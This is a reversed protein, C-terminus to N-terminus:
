CRSVVPLGLSSFSTLQIRACSVHAAPTQGTCSLSSTSYRSLSSIVRKCVKFASRCRFEWRGCNDTRFLPAKLKDPSPQSQGLLSCYFKVTKAVCLYNNKMGSHYLFTHDRSACTVQSTTARKAVSATALLRFFIDWRAPMQRTTRLDVYSTCEIRVDSHMQIWKCVSRMRNCPTNVLNSLSWTRPVAAVALVM